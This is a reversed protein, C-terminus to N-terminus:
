YATPLRVESTFMVEDYAFSARNGEVAQTVISEDQTMLYRLYPSGEAMLVDDWGTEGTMARYKSLVDRVAGGVQAISWTVNGDEAAPGEGALYARRLTALTEIPALYRAEETILYTLLLTRLLASQYRPYRFTKGTYHCYPDWWDGSPGGPRGSPYHISSPVIGAPKDRDDTAAAAVWTDMWDSFLATLAEDETRQWLLLTPQLARIHYNTDCAYDPNTEVTESSFYTSKFQLYGQDNEATWLSTM